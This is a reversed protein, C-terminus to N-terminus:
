AAAGEGSRAGSASGESEWAPTRAPAERFALVLLSAAVCTAIGVAFTSATAVSFAQHIADVIAPVYPAVVGRVADPLSALLAAGTDGVGTVAAIGGGGSGALAGAVEGPM